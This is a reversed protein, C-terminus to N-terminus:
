DVGTVTIYFATTPVASAYLYLCPVTDDVTVYQILDYSAQEATTPLTYGTGAGVEVSPCDVYLHNLSIQKKYLTTGSQSTTDTTWSTLDVALTSVKNIGDLSVGNGNTVNGATVINGSWDVTLGDSRSNDASGKGIIFAYQNTTDAVNYKGIALQNEGQAITGFGEAHSRMGSATTDFGEAHSFIGSATTDRGEAHSGTGSATNLVGDVRSYAGSAVNQHDGYGTYLSYSTNDTNTYYTRIYIGEQRLKVTAGGTTITEEEDLGGNVFVEINSVTGIPGILSYAQYPYETVSRVTALTEVSVNASLITQTSHEAYYKTGSAISGYVTANGGDGLEIAYEGATSKLHRSGITFVKTGIMGVNADANQGNTQMGGGTPDANVWLGSNADYTLVQGDQEDYFSVDTLDTLASAGGGGSGNVWKAGDYKLIQGSSPTTLTVDSLDNLDSPLADTLEKNTMAYPIYTTDSDDALRIMPYVTGVSGTSGTTGIRLYVMLSADANPTFTTISSGTAPSIVEKGATNNTWTNYNSLRLDIRDDADLGGSLTYTVGQKVNIWGIIKGTASAPRNTMSISVSKDSNVTYTVGTDTTTTLTNNLLNKAGLINNASWTVFKNDNVWKAGDYLLTEGSAANIITVDTLNDLSTAGSQANANIWEGSNADYTLVQNDSPTTISVDNLDDINGIKVTALIDWKSSSDIWVINTGAACKIGSGEIFRNDTTFDDTINYMDGNSLGTTPINAFAVSGKFVVGQAYQSAQDCWFKSNNHFTEDGSSVPVGGREGVAWAESDEAYGQSDTAAAQADEIAQEILQYESESLDTDAPLASRQVDLIFVFTGTRGSSETVVIQCRVRGSVATMQETLDATVTNGSLTASYNFGKGDPKTGQIVATGTPTYAVDGEYLKVILRGTGKDYQDCHIVVPAQEPILNLEFTQTIM